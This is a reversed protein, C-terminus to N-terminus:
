CSLGCCAFGVLARRLCEAQEVVGGQADAALGANSGALPCVVIRGHERRGVLQPIGREVGAAVGEVDDLHVAAARHGRLVVLTSPYANMFVEHM